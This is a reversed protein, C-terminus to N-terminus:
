RKDMWRMVFAHREEERVATDIFERLGPFIVVGRRQPDLAARLPPIPGCDPFRERLWYQMSDTWPAVDNNRIYGPLGRASMWAEFEALVADVRGPIAAEMEERERQAQLNKEHMTLPRDSM